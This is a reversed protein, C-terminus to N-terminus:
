GGYTWGTIKSTLPEAAKLVGGDVVRGIVLTHDGAALFQEAQCEFWAMAEALIPCGTQGTTYEIGELKRYIKAAEAEPRGQVKSAYYPQAFKRALEMADESLINVSFVQASRVNELTHADNEFCVVVLSPDFSVQMVWDAMMGNVEGDPARSGIIYLGYVMQELAAKAEEQSM